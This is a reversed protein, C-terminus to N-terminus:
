NVELIGYGGNTRHYLVCLKDDDEDTFIFFDHGTMEMQLVAEDISMKDAYITKTRIPIEEEEEALAEEEVFSRALSEKHRRSLRNKQTVIQKEMKEVAKETATELDYDTVESRLLGAKTNLTIEIRIQEGVKKLICRAVDDDDIVFYKNLFELKEKIMEENKENVKVDKGYVEVVM